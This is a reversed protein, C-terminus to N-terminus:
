FGTQLHSAPCKQLNMHSIMLDILQNVENYQDFDLTTRFHETEMIALYAECQKYQINM